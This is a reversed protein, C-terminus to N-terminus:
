HGCRGNLLSLEATWEEPFGSLFHLCSKERQRGPSKQMSLRLAGSPENGCKGIRYTRRNGRGPPVRRSDPFKQFISHSLKRDNV